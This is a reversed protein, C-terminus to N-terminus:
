CFCGCRGGRGGHNCGEVTEVSKDAVRQAAGSVSVRVVMREVGARPIFPGRVVGNSGDGHYDDEEDDEEHEKNELEQESHDEELVGAVAVGLHLLLFSENGGSLRFPVVVLRIPYSHAAKSFHFNRFVFTSPNIDIRCFSQLLPLLFFVIPLWRIHLPIILPHKTIVHHFLPNPSAFQVLMEAGTQCIM